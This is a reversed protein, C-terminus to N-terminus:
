SKVLVKGNLSEQIRELYEKRFYRMTSLVPNPASIGLGCLSTERVMNCLAELKDLDAMTAQGKLIKTLMEYMQVTGARCPICKGCSEDQCFDMYFQAVDVMNTNQDMVVMGGSGMMSGLKTLSDYDVPTDLMEAPICGGSPGGTQVAKVTGDPVGGGMDEVIERLTIGMPVEILGNNRIKGTLAFIKTGKSKETGISAYWDGGKRIIAAINAYTEVNNILTPCEWLGSQAPYPPRPRPTGRKGEVSLILATEEGCVFAGAGIRIDIKFDFSTDFIQSGLIGYKKGQKIAKQLREIALPYEARVYIYGHDAGVAYAAIAMGELVLHPDSELVSRDMFAGPDGEDANCIVYKQDGPMKAVTAWKLGTPYGGGGRGRLGSKTIEQVVEEPSMEHLVKYLSEYGGAAIYEEIKEPDIKGSNERVIRVQRSFFPHQLDGKTPSAEGKDAIEDIISAAQEPTVEEYLIEEPDLEVLPGRGCCGMCGVGVIQVRDELGTDKVATELNKKIELSNAAQCGTSTCCYVRTSKYSAREKQAIERLETLEM